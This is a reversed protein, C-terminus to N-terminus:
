ALSSSSSSSSSHHGFARNWGFLNLEKLTQISKLLEGFGTMELYGMKNNKYGMKKKKTM